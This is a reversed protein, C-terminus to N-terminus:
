KPSSNAYNNWYLMFLVFCFFLCLCVNLLIGIVSWYKPSENKVIGIIGLRIGFFLCLLWTLLLLWAFTEYGGFLVKGHLANILLYPAIAVLMGPQGAPCAGPASLSFLFIIPMWFGVFCGVSIKGYKATM